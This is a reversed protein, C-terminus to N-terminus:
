WSGSAGGGGSRGGGGRFGGGGGWGGGGGGFGGGRHRGSMTSALLYIALSPNTVLIFLFVLGLIAYFVLQFTGIPQRQAPRQIPFGGAPLPQGAAVAVAEMGLTVAADGNGARIQPVIIQNIIRSAVADPVDGELGYGVEIRLRRDDAMIFLILGDDIGQRGPRWSDFARVAFDEIPTDGTTRGIWVLLQRGTQQQYANLRNNLDASAAPSMFNATDTVWATPSAPVANQAVCLATLLLLAGGALVVQRLRM